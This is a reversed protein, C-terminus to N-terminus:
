PTKCRGYVDILRSHNGSEISIKERGVRSVCIPRTDSMSGFCRLGTSSQKVVLVMAVVISEDIMLVVSVVIGQLDLCARARPM